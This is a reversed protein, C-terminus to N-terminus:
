GPQADRQEEGRLQHQQGGGQRRLRGIGAQLLHRGIFAVLELVLFAGAELEQRAGDTRWGAVGVWVELWAMSAVRETARAGKKRLRAAPPVRVPPRQVHLVMASHSLSFRPQM